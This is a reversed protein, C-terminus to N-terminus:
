WVARQLASSCQQVLMRSGGATNLYGKLGAGCPGQILQVESGRTPVSAAAALTSVGQGFATKM